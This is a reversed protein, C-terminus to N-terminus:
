PEAAARLYGLEVVSLPKPVFDVFGISNRSADYVYDDGEDFRQTVGDEAVSVTLSGPVPRHSLFFEKSLGVATDAIDEMLSDWPEQCIPWFVGGVRNTVEQYRIGPQFTDPCGFTPAVVSSFTVDHHRELDHLYAVWEDLTIPSRDSADNEDSIVTIHLDTDPRRFGDHEDQRLEIASYAAAVGQETRSGDIGLLVMSAYAQEIDPTLPDLWALKGARVLHGSRAPDNMDTSVAGLHWDTTSALLVDLLAATNTALLAQEEAMSCSDDIVFLLDARPVEAQVFRDTHPTSEVALADHAEVPDQAARLGGEGCGSVAVGLALPGVVGRELRRVM